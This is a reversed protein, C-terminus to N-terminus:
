NGMLQRHLYVFELAVRRARQKQNAAASHGGEINEFYYVPHGMERMRAVMKRAHGPHVRDDKTSTDFFVHPYKKDHALHHYPSIRLLAEREGEVDPNGYEAMWSAGALLKHYRLMDLLPVACLVANFLEPRQTFVVGVLLGGNSGGSIGLRAPSTVKTAILDEAIAIFDDYARQRNQKLAAQHWAPGFEGGGRICALVYAGGRELWLKGTVAGYAPQMPVEFGGYGYLLTPTSGDLPLNERSVLFYPVKTGDKSTAERRTVKLGSTDFKDALQKIRMPMAQETGATEYLGPPNLFGTFTTMLDDSFPHSSILSTTGNAPLGVPEIRVGSDNVALRVVRGAVNDLMAVNLRSRSVDVSQISERAGPTLVAELASGDAIKTLPLRALSGAALDPKGALSMPQRLLFYLSGEFFAVLETSTPVDVRQLSLDPGIVFYESEYFTIARGVLRVVGSPGVLSIATASVDTPQAEFLTKAEALPTGRRWLKIVRPYGSTTLSGEGFDTGVLLADRDFWAIRSKAEPLEFGGAVFSKTALDFEREVSADSGGPSLSIMARESTEGLEMDAGHFVWNKQESAALADVDLVTEWVIESARYSERTARRWIGRVHTEDQWFNYVWEGEISGFPIREKDELLKEATALFEAYRADGELVAQTEANREKVWTLAKEGEVEELWLYPDDPDASMLVCAIAAMWM